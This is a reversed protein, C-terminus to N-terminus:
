YMKFIGRLIRYGEEQIYLIKEVIQNLIESKIKARQISDTVKVKIKEFAIGVFSMDSARGISDLWVILPTFTKDFVNRSGNLLLSMLQAPLYLLLLFWDRFFSLLNELPRRSGSLSSSISRFPILIIRLLSDKSAILFDLLPNLIKLLGFTKEEIANLFLRDVDDTSNQNINRFASVSIFILGLGLSTLM